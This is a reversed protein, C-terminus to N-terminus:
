ACLEFMGMGFPAGKGAHIYRGANLFPFLGSFDGEFRGYGTLGSLKRNTATSLIFRNETCVVSEAQLSLGKYDCVIESGGYYYALSSVRRM